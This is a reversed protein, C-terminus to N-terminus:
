AALPRTQDFHQRAARRIAIPINLWKIRSQPGHELDGYSCMLKKRKASKRAIAFVAEGNIVEFLHPAQRTITFPPEQMTDGQHNGGPVMGLPMRPRMSLSRWRCEGWPDANHDIKKAPAFDMKLPLHM